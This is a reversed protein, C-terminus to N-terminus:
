QDAQEYLQELLEPTVSGARNYVVEGSRNLVITRPLLQSGGAARFVADDAGDVAFDLAWGKDSLWAAVDDTVFSAHVALVEADGHAQMLADFYSLEKVCPNCYTAWLNIFVVEGRHESLHFAGGGILDVSFDALRDGVESGVSADGAGDPAAERGPWNFLALAAVLLVLALVRLSQGRRSKPMEPGILTAKGCKISIAGRACVDMCRGCQICERDNVRRVDMECHRVCAGCGDCRGADVRAGVLAFRNFLGYIAGLPCLFRCFARYCFACAVAVLALIAAKRTFVAGLAGRLAANKPHVLLALAGELTGAPCIYKCFGPLPLDRLLGFCLPIAIVFVALLVYKVWSLARTAKGKKIKPGPVKHLWEQLLGMPCLWGCITRGLTVGFLALMGLVYWGARHGSAALANQLAGLPCAAVAGPCSYCNLGPVCLAKLDGAYIEGRIFGKLHANYLLAAYLQALRRTSPRRRRWWEAIDAM